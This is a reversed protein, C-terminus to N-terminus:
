GVPRPIPRPQAAPSASAAGEARPPAPPFEFTIVVMPRGGGADVGARRNTGANWSGGGAGASQSYWDGSGSAGGSFGGGGGGISCFGGGGGGFGGGGIAYPIKESCLAEGGAGGANIATAPPPTSPSCDTCGRGGHALGNGLLGAGGGRGGLGGRGGGDGGGDPSNSVGDRGVERGADCGLIHECVNFRGSGGGGGGAAILLNATGPGRDGAPGALWVFSGGGGGGGGGHRIYGCQPCEQFYRDGGDSGRVGVLISLVMTTKVVNRPGNEARGEFEGYVVAGNGGRLSGVRPYKVSAPDTLNCNVTCETGYGSGGPAGTATIKYKLYTTGAPDLPMALQVVSGTPEFRFTCAGPNDRSCGSAVRADDVFLVARGFAAPLDADAREAHAHVAESRPADDPLVAGTFAVSGDANLVPRDMSFVLTDRGAEGAPLSLVANPAVDGFGFADWWAVFTGVPRHGSLRQPRNSFWLVDADPATLTVRFRGDPLAQHTGGGAGLTFLYDIGPAFGLRDHRAAADEPAHEERRLGAADLTWAADHGVFSTTNDARRWHFMGLDTAQVAGDSAPREDERCVGVADAGHEAVLRDRLAAFGHVFRCGAAPAAPRAEQAGAGVPRLAGAGLGLVL